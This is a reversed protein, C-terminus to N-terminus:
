PMLSNPNIETSFNVLIVRIKWSSEKAKLPRVNILPKNRIQILLCSIGVSFRGTGQLWEAHWFGALNLVLQSSEYSSGQLYNVHNGVM